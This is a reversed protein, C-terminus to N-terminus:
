KYANDGPRACLGADVHSHRNRRHMHRGIPAAVPATTISNFFEGFKEAKWEPNKM